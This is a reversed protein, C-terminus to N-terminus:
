DRFKWSGKVQGLDSRKETSEMTEPMTDPYVNLNEELSPFEFDSDDSQVESDLQKAKNKKSDRFAKKTDHAQKEQKAEVM